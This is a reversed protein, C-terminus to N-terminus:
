PGDAGGAWRIGGLVHARFLPDDWCEVTHGLATQFSRGGTDEHCWVLPRDAGPTGGRFTSGDASALMRVRGRPNRDFAYWEDTFEWRPPLHATAPHERDEVVVVGPQLDPHETFRAGILRGYWPWGYETCSAAHIGVFGGGAGQHARLATRAADTLVDGSTSLFVVVAHHPLEATLEDPDETATVRFGHGAGLERLAAVGHPISEHRYDATRSYVLVPGPGRSEPAM